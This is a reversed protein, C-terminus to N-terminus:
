KADIEVREIWFDDVRGNRPCNFTGEYYFYTANIGWGDKYRAPKYRPRAYEGHSTVYIGTQSWTGDGDYEFHKDLWIGVEKKTKFRSM